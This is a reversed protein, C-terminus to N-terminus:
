TFALAVKVLSADVEKAKHRWGEFLCLDCLTNISRPLGGAERCIVRIAENTFIRRTGGAKKLRFEIYFATEEENLFGLNLRLAIRQALAPFQALTAKLEPLGLLILSLLLRDNLQLNLLMRLDDFVAEDKITHAEDLILVTTRGEQANVLLHDYLSRFLTSRQSSPPSVGLQLAIEYLLEEAPLSPNILLGIDYREEELQLLFVRSLTSKGCGIEGMLLAAGKGYQVVYLLKGLIEQHAPLPCFFTPDPVNQFPARSLGWYAEYM